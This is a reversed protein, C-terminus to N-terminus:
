DDGQTHNEGRHRNRDHSNPWRCHVADRRPAPLMSGITPATPRTAATGYRPCWAKSAPRLYGDFKIEHLWREGSPAREVKTALAPRIFGPYVAKVGATLPKTRQYPMLCPPDSASAPLRPLPRRAAGCFEALLVPHRSAPPRLPPAVRAGRGRIRGGVLERSYQLRRRPYQGELLDLVVAELDTDEVDAERCVRGSKGLDDMVLYVTQDHDNPVISPTWGTKSM